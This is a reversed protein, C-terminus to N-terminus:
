VARFARMAMLGASEGAVVAPDAGAGFREKIDIVEPMRELFASLLDPDFHQDAAAAM